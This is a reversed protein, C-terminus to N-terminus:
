PGGGGARKAEVSLYPFIYFMNVNPSFMSLVDCYNELLFTRFCYGLPCHGVESWGALHMSKLALSFIERGFNSPVKLFLLNSFM